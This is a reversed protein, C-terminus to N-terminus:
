ETGGVHPEVYNLFRQHPSRSCKWYNNAGPLKERFGSTTVILRQKARSIAVFYACETDEKKGFFTQHEVGQVIVTDFELGKCKHITLIRVSHIESLSKLSEVVSINKEFCCQVQNKIQSVLEAFRVKNEYDHSLVAIDANGIRQILGEV